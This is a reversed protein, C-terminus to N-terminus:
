KIAEKQKGIRLAREFKHSPPARWPARPRESELEDDDSRESPKTKVASIARLDVWRAPKTPDARSRRSIRRPNTM